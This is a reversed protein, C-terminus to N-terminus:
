IQIPDFPAVLPAAAALAVLLVLVALGLRAGRGAWLRRAFEWPRAVPPPVLASAATM